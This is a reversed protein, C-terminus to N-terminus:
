DGFGGNSSGGGGVPRWPMVTVCLSYVTLVTAPGRLLLLGVDNGVRRFWRERSSPGRLLLLGVEIGILGGRVLWM